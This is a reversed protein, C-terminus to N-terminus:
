VRELGVADDVVALGPADLGLAMDANLLWVPGHGIRIRGVDRLIEALAEDLREAEFRGVLRSERGRAGLPDRLLGRDEGAADVRGALRALVVRFLWREPLHAGGPDDVGLALLHDIVPVGAEFEEAKRHGPKGIQGGRLRGLLAFGAEEVRMEARRALEARM